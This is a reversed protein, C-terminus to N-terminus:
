SKKFVHKFVGYTAYSEIEEYAVKFIDRSANAADEEKMGYKDFLISAIAEETTIQFDPDIDDM